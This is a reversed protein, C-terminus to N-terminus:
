GENAAATLRIAELEEYCQMAPVLAPHLENIKEEGTFPQEPYKAHYRSREEVQQLSTVSLAFGSIRAIKELIPVIGEAYNLLYSHSDKAQEDKFAQLMNALVGAFYGDFDAYNITAADLGLLEPEVMGPVAQMGRRKQQSRLVEDPSRYLLFFPVDPYRQRLLQHFFIHWCDTKIFLRQEDGTRKQGYFQLADDFLTIADGATMRKDKLPLRLLEDLFPVESLVIHQPDLALSQSVLTSGCRSVHFIFAAPRLAEIDRSWEQLMNLDSLSKVARNYGAQARIRLLTHEFFPEEFKVSGLNTWQCLLEQENTTLRFPIHNHLPHM